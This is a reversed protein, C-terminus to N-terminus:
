SKSYMLLDYTFQSSKQFEIEFKIYLDGKKFQNERKPM